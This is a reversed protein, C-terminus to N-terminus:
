FLRKWVGFFLGNYFVPCRGFRSRRTHYSVQVGGGGGLFFFFFFFLKQTSSCIWVIMSLLTPVTTCNSRKKVRAFNYGRASSVSCTGVGEGWGVSLTSVTLACNRQDKLMTNSPSPLPSMSNYLSLVAKQTKHFVSNFNRVSQGLSNQGHNYNSWKAKDSQM